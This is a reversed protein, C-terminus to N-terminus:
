EGRDGRKATSRGATRGRARRITSKVTEYNRGTLMSIAGLSFGLDSLILEPRRREEESLSGNISLALLASLAQENTPLATAAGRDTDADVAVGSRTM